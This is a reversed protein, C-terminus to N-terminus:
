PPPTPLPLQPPTFDTLISHQLPPSIALIAPILPIAPTLPTLPQSPTAHTPGDSAYPNTHSRLLSDIELEM